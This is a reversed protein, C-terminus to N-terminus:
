SVQSYRARRAKRAKAIARSHQKRANKLREKVITNNAKTFINLPRPRARRTKRNHVIITGDNNFSTTVESGQVKGVLNVEGQGSKGNLRNQWYQKKDKPLNKILKKDIFYPPIYKEEKPKEPM